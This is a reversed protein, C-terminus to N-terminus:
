LVREPITPLEVKTWDIKECGEYLTDLGYFERAEPQLLHIVVDGYDLLVWWGLDAGEARAHREGAAKLRVHLEDYLARVHPRSTGTIVVFYDAVKIQDGVDYVHIDEGKKDHALSAAAAALSRPDIPLDEPAPDAPTASGAILSTRM